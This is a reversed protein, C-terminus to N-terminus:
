SKKKNKYTLISLVANIDNKAEALSGCPGVLTEDKYRVVYKPLKPHDQREIIFGKYMRQGFNLEVNVSKTPEM